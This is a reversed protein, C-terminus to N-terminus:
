SGSDSNRDKTLPNKENNLQWRPKLLSLVHDKSIRKSILGNRDLLDVFENKLEHTEDSNPDNTIKEKLDDFLLSIEEAVNTSLEAKCKKTGTRDFTYFILESTKQEDTNEEAISPMIGTGIFLILIGIVLTKNITKNIKKM